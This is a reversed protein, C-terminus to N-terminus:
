QQEKERFILRMYDSATMECILENNRKIIPIKWWLTPKYSTSVIDKKNM